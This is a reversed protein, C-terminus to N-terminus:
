NLKAMVSKVLDGVNNLSEIESTDFKIGFRSEVGVIVNLHNFSDWGPVDSATTSSHLVIKDDAFLDRFIDTLEAYVDQETM